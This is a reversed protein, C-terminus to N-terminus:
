MTTETANQLISKYNHCRFHLRSELYYGTFKDKAQDFCKAAESNYGQLRLANGLEVTACPLIYKEIKLKKHTKLLIKLETSADAPKGSQILFLGKFFSYIAQEESEKELTAARKECTSRWIRVIEPNFNGTKTYNFFYALELFGFALKSKGDVFATAKRSVYKEDPISKGAVKQRLSEIKSFIELAEDTRGLELLALGHMYSYIAPSWKSEKLLKASYKQAEEFNQLMGNCWYLNWYLFHDFNQFSHQGPNLHTIATKLDGDIIKRQAKNIEVIAGGKFLNGLQQLHEDTTECSLGKIEGVTGFFYQVIYFYFMPFWKSFISRCCNANACEYLLALGADRDGRFGVWELIKLIKPPLVSLYLQYVGLGCKAGFEFENKLFESSWTKKEVIKMCKEFIKYSERVALCGNAIALIDTGSSLVLAATKFLIAEARVLLAHCKEDSWNKYKNSDFAESLSNMFGENLFSDCMKVTSEGSELAIKFDGQDFTMVANLLRLATMAHHHYFTENQVPQVLDQAEQFKNNFFLHQSLDAIKIGKEITNEANVHDLADEFNDEEPM